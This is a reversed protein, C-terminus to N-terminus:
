EGRPRMQKLAALSPGLDNHLAERFAKLLYPVDEVPFYVGLQIGQKLVRPEWDAFTDPDVEWTYAEGKYKRRAANLFTEIDTARDFGIHAEGPRYEQCCQVTEMGLAWVLPLLPALGTDIQFRRGARRCYLPVAKHNPLKV